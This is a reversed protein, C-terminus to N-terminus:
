LSDCLQIPSHSYLNWSFVVPFVTHIFFCVIFKYQRNGLYNLRKQCLKKLSNMNTTNLFIERESILLILSMVEYTSRIIGVQYQPDEAQAKKFGTPAKIVLKKKPKNLDTKGFLDDNLGALTQM